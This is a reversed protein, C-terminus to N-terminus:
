FLGKFIIGIADPGNIIMSIFIAFAFVKKEIKEIKKDRVIDEEHKRDLQKELADFKLDLHEKLLEFETM